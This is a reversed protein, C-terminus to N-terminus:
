FIHIHQSAIAKMEREAEAYEAETADHLNDFDLLNVSIPPLDPSAYVNQVVGGVVEITVTGTSLVEPVACESKDAESCRPNEM